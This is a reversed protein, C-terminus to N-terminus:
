KDIQNKVARYQDNLEQIKEEVQKNQIEIIKCKRQTEEIDNELENNNESSENLQHCPNKTYIIGAMNDGLTQGLVDTSMNKYDELQNQLNVIKSKHEKYKERYRLFRSFVYFMVVSVVILTGVVILIIKLNNLLFSSIDEDSKLKHRLPNIVIAYTGLETFSFLKQDDREKRDVCSWVTKNLVALCYDYTYFQKKSLFNHELFLTAPRKLKKEANVIDISIISSLVSNEFTLNGESSPIANSINYLSFMTRNYELKRITSHAYGDIKLKSYITTANITTSNNHNMLQVANGPIFVRGIVRNSQDYSFKMDLPTLTNFSISQYKAGYIRLMDPCSSANEVCSSDMCRYPTAPDDCMSVGICELMNKVCQGNTCQFPKELSCGNYDPKSDRCLGDESLVKGKSCTILNRNCYNEDNSCQGDQCRFQLPLCADLLPCYSRFKRCSGDKCSFPATPPCANEPQIADLKRNNFKLELNRLLTPTTSTQGTVKDKGLCSILSTECRGSAECWIEHEKCAAHYFEYTCEKTSRACKGTRCKVPNSEPCL